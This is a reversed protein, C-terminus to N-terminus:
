YEMHIDAPDDGKSFQAQYLGAYFGDQAILEEHNGTEIINGDQMVLIMDANKITSLRHAIVFSTRGEMVRDMAEQILKELRTDVSSTAEDLILIDPDSIIARAITMLQRQGQSINSGGEEIEMNYGGPLTKIFDDVNALKSAEFVDIDTADLNGFRINEMVSGSFLWADQLVMGMHDRLDERPVEKTNIGDVYIAGGDPDYFRMLLNILTTKGAGTPGVIAITQGPMATFNVGDMLPKDKSYGFVVDSFEVKGQVEEPLSKDYAMTTEEEEDLFEVVRQASALASQLIPIIQTMQNVPGRINGVYSLVAQFNGLTLNRAFVALAGVGVMAVYSINFISSMIPNLIMSLFSTKQGIKFLADNRSQFNSISVDQQNFIMLETYGSLQEQSYGFLDGLADAKKKYMPQSYSMVYKGVLYNIVLALIIILGLKYSLILLMVISFVVMLINNTLNVLSQQLANSITDVDNTVRSLIDGIQKSDFYSVPLRNIKQSIAARLDRTSRQTGKSILRMSGFNTLTNIVGNVFYAIVVMRIYPFNIGGTGNAIALVNEGLETIALGIIYPQLVSSITLIVTLLLGGILSFKYTKLFPLLRKVIYSINSM